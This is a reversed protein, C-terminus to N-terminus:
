MCNYVFIVCITCTNLLYFSRETSPMNTKQFGQARALKCWCFRASFSHEAVKVTQQVNICTRHWLGTGTQKSNTKPARLFFLFMIWSYLASFSFHSKKRPSIWAERSWWRWGFDGSMEHPLKRYYPIMQYDPSWRPYRTHLLCKPPINTVRISLSTFHSLVFFCPQLFVPPSPSIKRGLRTNLKGSVCLSIGTTPVRNTFHM